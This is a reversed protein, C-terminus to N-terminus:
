KLAKPSTFNPWISFLPFHDFIEDCLALYYHWWHPKAQTAQKEWEDNLWTNRTLNECTSRRLDATKHSCPFTHLCKLITNVTAPTQLTPFTFLDSPLYPVQTFWNWPVSRSYILPLTRFTLLDTALYPVHTFWYCPVSRSYILQLTRFTLLDIALYLGHFFWNCPVSRSYILQLTRFTLYENALYPIYYDLTWPASCSDYFELHQYSLSDFMFWGNKLIRFMFCWNALFQVLIM